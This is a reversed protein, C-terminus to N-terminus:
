SVMIIIEERKVGTLSSVKVGRLRGSAMLGRLKVMRLMLGFVCVSLSMAKRKRLSRAVKEERRPVRMM